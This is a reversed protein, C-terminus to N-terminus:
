LWEVLSKIEGFQLPECEFMNESMLTKMNTKRAQPYNKYGMKKVVNYDIMKTEPNYVKSYNLGLSHCFPLIYQGNEKETILGFTRCILGRYDYVTCKKDESLFPCRYMYNEKNEQKAYEEKLAKIRAIVEQQEKIPIRFFGLLLFKFELDSYPYAGKECCHSCGKKCCIYEKQDEFYEDLAKQITNLYQKYKTFDELTYDM